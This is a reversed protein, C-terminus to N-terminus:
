LMGRHDLYADIKRCGAGESLEAPTAWWTFGPEGRFWTRQRRTYVLTAKRIRRTTTELPEGRLIHDLLQRYGVSGLPRTDPGYCRVIQRCEDVWGGALMAETRQAIRAHLTPRDLDLVVNFSRYRPAGKAHMERLQGLPVGTQEYVELARVIRVCDNPHIREAALPDVKQLRAYLGSRGEVVAQQELLSRIAPDVKPTEILGRLLARLWLGTGGVVIPLKGRRHIDAIAADALTAYEVADLPNNPTAVDILHHVIGDLDEPRPKASGVDFGRYVQISDAGVLEGGYRRALDIAVTTKGTSTPGAIVLLPIARLSM